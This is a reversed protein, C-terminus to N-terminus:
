GSEFVSARLWQSTLAAPITAALAEQYRHHARAGRTSFVGDVMRGRARTLSRMPVLIVECPTPHDSLFSNGDELTDCILAIRKM